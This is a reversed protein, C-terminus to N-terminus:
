LQNRPELSRNPEPLLRLVYDTVESLAVKKKEMTARKVVEVQSHAMDKVGVNIRLPLGLLDADKFKVGPNEPRDDLFTDVGKEWFLHYLKEAESLLKKDQPDLLCIHILFPAVSFPWVIGEKDFGQEVVAQVVRTIGIGYCGMEVNKSRGGSDSYCVSMKKSYKDGLYFIHGVEIGRKSCLKQGEPSLDGKKAYRFDAIKEAQFDRNLVVNKLHYGDENAGVIFSSVHQLEQDMYIPLDLGVPGCSGTQVGTIKKVEKNSLFVPTQKMGLEQKLKFVNLEDSGRLLIAVKKGEDCSLFLIKSLNKAPVDLFKSLQQITRIKPTHIREPAKSNEERKQNKEEGQNFIVPCLDRTSAFSDTLLLEDEGSDALIHFEESYKGGIEGSDASVIRFPVNLRSFISEYISRMKKYSELAQSPTADFSYADKMIFEKARLLGFRPRIEDRFKTQIQYLRLPLDRYSKIHAKAYDSVVEEHTPGLCFDQQSRNKMKQLLDEYLDWRGSHEWISKPQVMPMSIEVYHKDMESRVINEFKRIARLMLPGYTFIGASLKKIYGGRILLAHSPVFAEAPSERLTKIRAESWRM